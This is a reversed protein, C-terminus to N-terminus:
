PKGQVHEPAAAAAHLDELQAAAAVTGNPAAPKLTELAGHLRLHRALEALVQARAHAAAQHLGVVLCPAAQCLPQRGMFGANGQAGLAVQLLTQPRARGNAGSLM